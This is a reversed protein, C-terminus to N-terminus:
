DVVDSDGIQEVCKGVVQDTVMQSMMLIVKTVQNKIWVIGAFFDQLKEVLAHCLPDVFNEKVYTGIKMCKVGFDIAEDMLYSILDMLPNNMFTNMAAAVIKNMAVVPPKIYERETEESIGWVGIVDNIRDIVDELEEPGFFGEKEMDRAEPIPETIVLAESEGEDMVAPNKGCLGGCCFMQHEGNPVLVKAGAAVAETDEEEADQLPVSPPPATHCAETALRAPRSSRLEGECDAGTDTRAQEERLAKAQRANEISEDVSKMQEMMVRHIEALKEDRTWAPPAAAHEAAPLFVKKAQVPVDFADWDPPASRTTPEEMMVKAQGKGHKIADKEKSSAGHRCWVCGNDWKIRDYRLNARGEIQYLLNELNVSGDDTRGFNYLTVHREIKIEDGVKKEKREVTMRVNDRVEGRYYRKGHGDDKEEDDIFNIPMPTRWEGHLTKRAEREALTM